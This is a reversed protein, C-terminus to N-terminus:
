GITKIMHKMVEAKIGDVGAAKGNKQKQVLRILDEETMTPKEMMKSQGKERNEAEARLMQEKLGIHNEDGYWFNLTMRRQKQYIDKKRDEIFHKWDDQAKHRTGDERYLYM